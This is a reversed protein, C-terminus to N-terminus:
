KAVGKGTWGGGDSGATDLPSVAAIIRAERPPRDIKADQNRQLLRLPLELKSFYPYVIAHIAGSLFLSPL